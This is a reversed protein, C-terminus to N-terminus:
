LDSEAMKRYFRAIENSDLMAQNDNRGAEDWVPHAM